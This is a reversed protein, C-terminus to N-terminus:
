RKPRPGSKTNTMRSTTQITPAIVQGNDAAIVKHTPFSNALKEALVGSGYFTVGCPAEPDEESTIVGFMNSIVSTGCSSVTLAGNRELFGCIKEILPAHEKMVAQYNKQSEPNYGNAEAQIRAQTLAPIELGFKGDEIQNSM